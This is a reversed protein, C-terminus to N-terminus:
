YTNIKVGFRPIIKFVRNRNIESPFSPNKEYVKIANRIRQSAATKEQNRGLGKKSLFIDIQDYTAKNDAIEFLCDFIHFYVAKHNFTLPKGNYYYNGDKEKTIKRQKNQMKPSRINRLIISLSAVREKLAKQASKLQERGEEDSVSRGDPLVDGLRSGKYRIGPFYPKSEDELAMPDPQNVTVMLEGTVGDNACFSPYAIRLDMKTGYESSLLRSLEWTWWGYCDFILESVLFSWGSTKAYSFFQDLEAGSKILAVVYEEVNEAPLSDMGFLRQQFAILQSYGSAPLYGTDERISNSM